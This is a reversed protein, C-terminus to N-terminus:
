GHALLSAINSWLNRSIEIASNSARAVTAGALASPGRAPKLRSWSAVAGGILLYPYLLIGFLPFILTQKELEPGEVGIM